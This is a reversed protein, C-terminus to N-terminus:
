ARGELVEQYVELTMKSMMELSYNEAVLSRANKGMRERLAEDDLLRNIREALTQHDGKAILFGTGGDKVLEAVDGVDSAVVPLGCAMAELISMPFSELLSPLVLMDGSNYLQPMNRYDVYCFEFNKESIGTEWLMRKYPERSGAGAFVFVVDKHEWL